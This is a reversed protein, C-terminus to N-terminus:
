VVALERKNPRVYRSRMTAFVSGPAGISAVLAENRRMMSARWPISSKETMASASTMLSGLLGLAREIEQEHCDGCKRQRDGTNADHFMISLETESRTLSITIRM